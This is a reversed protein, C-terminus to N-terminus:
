IYVICMAKGGPSTKKQIPALLPDKKLLQIHITGDEPRTPKPVFHVKVSWITEAFGAQLDSSCNM